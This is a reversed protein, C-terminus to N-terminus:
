VGVHSHRVSDRAEAVMMGLAEGQVPAFDAPVKFYTLLDGDSVYCSQDGSLVALENSLQYGYQSSGVLEAAILAAHQYANSTDFLVMSHYDNDKQHWLVGYLCDNSRYFPIEFFHDLQRRAEKAKYFRTAKQEVTIADFDVPWEVGSDPLELLSFRKKMPSLGSSGTDPTHM